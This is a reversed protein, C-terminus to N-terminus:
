LKERVDLELSRLHPAATSIGVRPMSTAEVWATTHRRENEDAGDPFLVILFPNTSLRYVMDYVAMAEARTETPWSITWRRPVPVRGGVTQGGLTYSRDPLTGDISVASFGITSRHLLPSIVMTGADIYNGPATATSFTAISSRIGDDRVFVWASLVTAIPSAPLHLVVGPPGGLEADGYENSSWGSDTESEISAAEEVYWGLAGIEVYVPSIPPDGSFTGDADIRVEVDAGSATALLAADWNFICWQGTTSVVERTGLDAVLVGAEYLSCQVTPNVHSGPDPSGAVRVWMGFCQGHAGTVPASSPTAFSFRVWFDPDVSPSAPGLWLGDPSAPDEDVNTVAGSVGSSAAIATPPLRAWLSGFATTAERTIVRTVANPGLGMGVLGIASVSSLVAPSFSAGFLSLGPNRSNIRCFVSPEQNFLNAAPLSAEELGTAVTPFGRGTTAYNPALIMGNQEVM